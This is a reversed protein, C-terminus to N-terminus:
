KNSTKSRTFGSGFMFRSLATTKEPACALLLTRSVVLASIMSVLVGLGFVLAFGKVLSTGSLWYLVVASIISSLNGDRIPLWARAFGERISERIHNRDRLEEKMREFILVNADVAMGLSLILGAIGSSTITVPIIKFLVLMMIIYTVLSVVAVLGPLRYYVLLFIFIIIFAITFAYLGADLTQTGLSADITQTGMLEIPVPLAGFNLDQVLQRAEEPTFRGTIQAQNGVIEQRIVPSSIVQGDLFIAMVEGVNERTITQFLEQGESNFQIGITPSGTVNDFVLQSRKLHGGGLGTPTYAAQLAAEIEETTSSANLSELAAQLDGQIKFELLPTKGIANIAETVDTVGPLEVILRNQDEDASFAGGKEVQVIPESVGFVNIRREITQRLSDMAGDVDSEAIQSVDARYTLHTGGDLDLGFHFPFSSTEHNSNAIFYGLLGGLILLIVAWIRVTNM